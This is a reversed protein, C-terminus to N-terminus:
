DLDAFEAVFILLQRQKEKSLEVNCPFIQERKITHRQDKNDIFITTLIINPNIKDLAIIFKNM